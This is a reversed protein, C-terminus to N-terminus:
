SAGGPAPRFVPRPKAAERAKRVLAALLARSKEGILGDARKGRRSRRDHWWSWANAAALVGHVPAAWGLGEILDALAWLAFGAAWLPAPDPWSGALRFVTGAVWSVAAIACFLVGAASIVAALVSM